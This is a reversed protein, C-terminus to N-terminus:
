IVRQFVTWAQLGILEEEEYLEGKLWLLAVQEEVQAPTLPKDTHFSTFRETVPEGPEIISKVKLKYMYEKPMKPWAKAIVIGTPLRDRRVYQLEGAVKAIKNQTRWDSLMDTRRYSLGEARMQALFRSASMGKRFASRMKAIVIAREIAM